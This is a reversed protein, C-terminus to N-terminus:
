LACKCAGPLYFRLMLMLCVENANKSRGKSRMRAGEEKVQVPIKLTTFKRKKETFNIRFGYLAKELKKRIKCCYKSM